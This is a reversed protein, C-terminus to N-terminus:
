QTTLIGGTGGGGGTGVCGYSPAQDGGHGGNATLFLVGNYVPVDLFILGGGGGGGVGDAICCGVVTEDAGSAIISGANGTISGAKIIVIGGGNAGNSGVANNYDGCGGGGGLFLHNGQIANTLSLGGVGMNGDIPCGELAEGGIGGATFNAGGGGGHNHKNGGGGGNALKGKGALINTAIESIGEGKMAGGFNWYSGGQNLDYYFDPSGSGCSGDPNGSINGGIFGQGTVDINANFALNNTVFFVLVGGTTGNWPQAQLMSAVNADTYEPVKVLQVRGGVWYSNALASNLVITTGSASTVRSFEYNGANNLNVVNGFAASNSSDIVAGKMQIILVKDGANFNAISGVAIQTNCGSTTIASVPTYYNIVGGINTQAVLPDNIATICCLLLYIPKMTHRGNKM